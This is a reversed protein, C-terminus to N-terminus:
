HTCITLPKQALELPTGANENWFSRAPLAVRRSNVVMGSSDNLFKKIMQLNKERISVHRQRSCALAHVGVRKSQPKRQLEVKLNGRLPWPLPILRIDEIENARSAGPM